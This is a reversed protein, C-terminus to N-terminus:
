FFSIANNSLGLVSVFVDSGVNVPSTFSLFSLVFLPRVFGVSWSQVGVVM